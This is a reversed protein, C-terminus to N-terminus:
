VRDEKPFSVINSLSSLIDLLEDRVNPNMSLKKNKGLSLSRISQSASKVTLGKNIILDKLNKAIKVQKEDYFRRGEVYLPQFYQVESEWYRLTYTKLALKKSLQGITLYRQCNSKAQTTKM